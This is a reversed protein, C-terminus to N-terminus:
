DFDDLTETTLSQMGRRQRQAQDLRPLGFAADQAVRAIGKGTLEVRFAFRFDAANPLRGAPRVDMEPRIGVRSLQDRIGASPFNFRDFYFLLAPDPLDLSRQEDHRAAGDVGRRQQKSGGGVRM